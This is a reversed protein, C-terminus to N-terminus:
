ALLTTHTTEFAFRHHPWGDKLGAPGQALQQDAHGQHGDQHGHGQGCKLRLLALSASAICLASQLLQLQSLGSPTADLAAM